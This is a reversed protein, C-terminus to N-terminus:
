IRPLRPSSPRSRMSDTPGPPSPSRPSPPSRRSRRITTRSTRRTQSWSTSSARARVADFWSGLRFDVNSLGLSRANDRAVGLAGPSIDVGVIRALPRESAIALAVAGSGTGLDLVARPESKAIHELAVEVLMETEPRPVLVAPTVKLPLSWFERTGTLYAVPMGGDRRELLDRYVRLDHDALVDSGRAILAARDIGLVSSLLVEADLRPSDSHASLSRVGARLASEVTSPEASRDAVVAESSSM